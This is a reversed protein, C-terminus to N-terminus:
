KGSRGEGHRADPYLFIKIAASVLNPTKIEAAALMSVTVLLTFITVVCTSIGEGGGFLCWIARSLARVAQCVFGSPIAM